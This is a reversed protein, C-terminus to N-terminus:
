HEGVPEAVECEGGTGDIGAFENCNAVVPVQVQVVDGGSLEMTMAVVNGPAIGEGEVPIGEEDPSALNLFGGPAVEIPTFEGVQGAEADDITVSELSGPEDVDNNSLTTVLVGSGEEASVVVANLVDVSGDRNTAGQAIVNVRDTALDFGCSTLLPATLLLAGLALRVDASRRLHM